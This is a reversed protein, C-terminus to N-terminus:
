RKKISREIEELKQLYEQHRQLQRNEEWLKEFRRMNEINAREIHSGPRDLVKNNYGKYFQYDDALALYASLIVILLLVSILLLKKM